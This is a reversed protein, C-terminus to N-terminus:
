VQQIFSPLSSSIDRRDTFGQFPLTRAGRNCVRTPLLMEQGKSSDPTMRDIVRSEPWQMDTVSNCPARSCLRLVPLAKVTRISM